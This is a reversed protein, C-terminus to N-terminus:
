SRLRGQRVTGSRSGILPQHCAQWREANRAGRRASGPSGRSMLLDTPCYSITEVPKIVPSAATIAITSRSTGSPNHFNNWRTTGSAGTRGWPPPRRRYPSRCTSAAMTNTAVVPRVHRWSGGSKPEDPGVACRRNVSHLWGSDPGLEVAQDQVLEARAAGHVQRPARDVRQVHPCRFPPRVPGFGTSRPLSPEFIWKIVSRVPRGMEMSTEAALVWSLWPRSGRTRPM